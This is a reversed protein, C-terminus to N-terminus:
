RRCNAGTAAISNIRAHFGITMRYRCNICSSDFASIPFKPRVNRNQRRVRFNTFARWFRFRAVCQSAIQASIRGAAAFVPSFAAARCVHMLPLHFQPCYQVVFGAASSFWRILSRLSQRATTSCRQAAIRLPDVVLRLFGVRRKRRRSAVSFVISASARLLLRIRM